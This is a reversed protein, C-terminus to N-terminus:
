FSQIWLRITSAGVHVLSHADISKQILVGARAMDALMHRLAGGSAFCPHLHVWTDLIVWQFIDKRRELWILSTPYNLSVEGYVHLGRSLM